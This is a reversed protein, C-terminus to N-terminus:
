LLGSSFKKPLLPSPSVNMKPENETNQQWLVNINDVNSNLKGICHNIATALHTHRPLTVQESGLNFIHFCKKTLDVELQLNPFTPVSLVVCNNPLYCQSNLKITKGDMPLINCSRVSFLPQAAANISPFVQRSVQGTKDKSDMVAFATEDQPFFMTCNNKRLMEVGAILPASLGKVVILDTDRGDENVHQGGFYLGGKVTVHDSIQLPNGDAGILQARYNPKQTVLNTKISDYYEESALVDNEAGTDLLCYTPAAASQGLAAEIKLTDRPAPLSSIKIPLEAVTNASPAVHVHSSPEHFLKQLDPGLNEDFDALCNLQSTEPGPVGTFRPPPSSSTPPVAPSHTPFDRIINVSDDPKDNTSYFQTVDSQLQSVDNQHPPSLHQRQDDGMEACQVRAPQAFNGPEPWAVIHSSTTPQGNHPIGGYFQSLSVPLQQSVPQQQLDQPQQSAPVPGHGWPVPGHGLQGQDQLQSQCQVQAPCYECNWIEIGHQCISPSSACFQGNIDGNAYNYMQLEDVHGNCFNVNSLGSVLNESNYFKIPSLNPQSAFYSKTPYSPSIPYSYTSYVPSPYAPHGIQCPYGPIQGPYGPNTLSNCQTARALQEGGHRGGQHATASHRWVAVPPPRSFDPPPPPHHRYLEIPSLHIYTSYSGDSVMPQPPSLYSSGGRTTVNKPTTLEQFHNIPAAADTSTAAADTPVTDTAITASTAAVTASSSIPALTSSITNHTTHEHKHRFHGSRHSLTVRRSRSTDPLGRLRSQFCSECEKECVVCVGCFSENQRSM